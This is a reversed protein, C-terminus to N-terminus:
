PLPKETSLREEYTKCIKCSHGTCSSSKKHEEYEKKLKAHHSCLEREDSSRPSDTNYM